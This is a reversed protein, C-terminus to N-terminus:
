ITKTPKVKGKDIQEDDSKDCEKKKKECERKEEFERIAKKMEELKGAYKELEEPKGANRDPDFKTEAIEDMQRLINDM